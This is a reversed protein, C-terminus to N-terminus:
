EKTYFDRQTEVSHMMNKSVEEEQKKLDGFKHTVYIKRLMQSAIGVREKSHKKTLKLLIM